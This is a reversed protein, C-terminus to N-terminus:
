YNRNLLYSTLEKLVLTDGDLKKLSDLADATLKEAIEKAMELGYLTVFTTKNNERDSGIPKGLVAEDGTM